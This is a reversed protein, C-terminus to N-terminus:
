LEHLQKACDLRIVRSLPALAVLAFLGTVALLVAWTAGSGLRVDQGTLIQYHVAVWPLVLLLLGLSVLHCAMVELWARAALRTPHAGLALEIALRRRRRDVLLRLLVFVSSLALVIALSGISFFIVAQTMDSHALRARLSSADGDENVEFIPNLGQVTREVLSKFYEREAYSLAPAVVVATPIGLYSVSRADVFIAPPPRKDLGDYYINEVVGIVRIDIPHGLIDLLHLPKGVAQQVTQCCALALRRDLIVSHTDSAGNFEHGALLKGGAVTFFKPSVPYLRVNYVGHMTDLTHFPLGGSGARLGPLAGVAAHRGHFIEPIEHLLVRTMLATQQSSFSYEHGASPATIGLGVYSFDHDILGISGFRSLWAHTTAWSSVTVLGYAVTLAPVLLIISRIWSTGGESLWELTDNRGIRYAIHWQPLAIVFTGLLTLWVFAVWPIAINHETLVTWPFDNPLAHLTWIASLSTILALGIAIALAGVLANGFVNRLLRVRTAGLVHALAIICIRRRTFDWSVYFLNIAAFGVMALAVANYLSVKNSITRMRAPDITFPRMMVLRQNTSLFGRNNLQKSITRMMVALVKRSESRDAGLLLPLPGTEFTTNIGSEDGEEWRSLAAFDTLPIWLDTGGIHWVGIFPARLVGTILLAHKGIWISQGVARAPDGFLEHAKRESVLVEAQVAQGSRPWRGALLKAGVASFYHRGVYEVQFQWTGVSSGVRDTAIRSGFVDAVAIGPPLLQQIHTAMMRAPTVTWSTGQNGAIGLAYVERQAAAGSVSGLSLGALLLHALLYISSATIFLAQSFTKM